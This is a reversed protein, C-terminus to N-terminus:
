KSKPKELLKSLEAILKNYRKDAELNVTENDDNVHDYLEKGVLRHTEFDLWETYRWKNTRVSYGMAQPKGRYYAPRPHQTYAVNDTTKEPNNMIPVLSKGALKDPKPLKCLDILTPYLDVLEVISKTIKGANKDQPVSIMFPTHADLEFNTTKGWQGHEGLEYGHDSWFVIITNKDLKLRKLTVLLKGVQADLYSVAALYGHRLERNQEHSITINENRLFEFNDHLAIAPVNEPPNEDIPMSIKSRDYLDWYKKPANFPVHPKWFGVALFFPQDPKQAFRELAEVSNKAVRGDYYAEDPVDMCETWRTNAYNKPLTGNVQPKDNGHTGYHLIPEVSWSQPYDAHGDEHWNHYIKGIDQTFYGSKKFQEPLSVIDPLRRISSTLNWFKLEDPRRGTLVSARSPACLAQQCYANSFLIGQKALRDLNPTKVEKNGYCGLDTRLDDCVIFLVNYKKYGIQVAKNQQASIKSFSTILFIGALATRKLKKQLCM